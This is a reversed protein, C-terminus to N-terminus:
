PTSIRMMDSTTIIVLSCSQKRTRINATPIRYLWVLISWGADFNTGIPYEMLDMIVLMDEFRGLYFVRTLRWFHFYCLSCFQRSDHVPSSIEM